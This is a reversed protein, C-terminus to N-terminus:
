SGSHVIRTVGGRERDCVNVIHQWSRDFLEDSFFGFSGIGLECCGNKCQFGALQLFGSGVESAIFFSRAESM